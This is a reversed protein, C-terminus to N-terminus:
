DNHIEVEIRIVTKGQRKTAELLSKVIDAVNSETVECKTKQSLPEKDTKEEVDVLKEEM